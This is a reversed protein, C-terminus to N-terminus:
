GNDLFGGGPGQTATLIANAQDLTLYPFAATLLYGAEPALKGVDATKGATEADRLVHGDVYGMVYFPRGTVTEDGCFGLAPAM